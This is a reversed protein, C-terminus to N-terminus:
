IDVNQESAIKRVVPSSFRRLREELDLEGDDGGGGDVTPVAGVPAAAIVALQVEFLPQTAERARHHAFDGRLLVDVDM